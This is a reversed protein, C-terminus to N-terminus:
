GTEDKSIVKQLKNAMKHLSEAYQDLFKQWGGSAEIKAQANVLANAHRTDRAIRERLCKIEDKMEQEWLEPKTGFGGSDCFSFGSPSSNFVDADIADIYGLANLGWALNRGLVQKFAFDNMLKEHLERFEADVVYLFGRASMHDFPMCREVVTVSSEWTADFYFFDITNNEITFKKEELTLTSWAVGRTRRLDYDDDNVFAWNRIKDSLKPDTSPLVSYSLNTLYYTDKEESSLLFGESELARLAAKRKRGDQELKEAFYKGVKKIGDEKYEDKYLKSTDLRGRFVIGDLLHSQCIEIYKKMM